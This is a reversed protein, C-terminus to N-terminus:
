VTAKNIFVNKIVRSHVKSKRKSYPRNKALIVVKTNAKAMM